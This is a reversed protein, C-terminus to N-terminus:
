TRGPASVKSTCGIEEANDCGPLDPFFQHVEPRRESVVLAGCALSEYVRPNLSTAPLRQRNYHSDERFVNIVIKTQRYLAATEHAPLNPSRCLRNLAASHWPGGAVYTLLGREALLSLWQERRSYGAGVFGVALPRPGQPDFHLHPDFCTPLYHANKHRHLTSPDNTFVWQFAGSFKSTDDVEYPEDLLWVASTFQQTLARWRGGFRRGHLVFLLDPNFRRVKEPLAPDDWYVENVILNLDAAAHM